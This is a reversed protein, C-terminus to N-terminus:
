SQTFSLSPSTSALSPASTSAHGTSTAPVDYLRKAHRGSGNQQELVDMIKCNIQCGHLGMMRPVCDCLHKWVYEQGKAEEDKARKDALDLAEKWPVEAYDCLPFDIVSLYAPAYVLVCIRAQHVCACSRGAKM